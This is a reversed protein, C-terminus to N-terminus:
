MAKYVKRRQSVSMRLLTEALRIGDYDNEEQAHKLCIEVSSNEVNGDGLVLHLSGGAENGPKALYAKAQRIVMKTTIM